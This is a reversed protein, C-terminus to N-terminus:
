KLHDIKLKRIVSDKVDKGLSDLTPFVFSEDIGLMALEKRIQSKAENKIIYTEKDAFTFKKEPHNCLLFLSKQNFYRSDTYRPVVYKCRDVNIINEISMSINELEDIDLSKMLKITYVKGDHGDNPASAFYLAILPNYTWDLLRTPVGYHQAMFLLELDTEPYESIYPWCRKKFELFLKMELDKSYDEMMRGVSPKLEYDCSSHGRYIMDVGDVANSVVKDIYSCVSYISIKKM